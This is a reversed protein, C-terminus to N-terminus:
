FEVLTQPRLLFLLRKLDYLEREPVLPQHIPPEDIVSPVHYLLM